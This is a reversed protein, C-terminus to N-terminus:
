HLFRVDDKSPISDPAPPVFGEIVGCVIFPSPAPMGKPFYGSGEICVKQDARIYESHGHTNYDWIHGFFAAGAILFLMVITLKSM